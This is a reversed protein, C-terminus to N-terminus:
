EGVIDRVPEIAGVTTPKKKQARREVCVPVLENAATNVTAFDVIAGPEIVLALELSGQAHNCYDPETAARISAANALKTMWADFGGSGGHHNFHSELLRANAKLVEAFRGIFANYRDAISRTQVAAPTGCSLAAVTFEQQLQRLHAQKADDPAFCAVSGASAQTASAAL